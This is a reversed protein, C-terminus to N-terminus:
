HMTRAAKFCDHAMMIIFNIFYSVGSPCTDLADFTLRLWIQLLEVIIVLMLLIKITESDSIKMNQKARGNSYFVFYIISIKSIPALLNKDNFIEEIEKNNVSAM